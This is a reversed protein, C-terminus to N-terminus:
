YYYLHPVFDILQHIYFVISDQAFLNNPLKRFFGLKFNYIHKLKDPPYDDVPLNTVLTEIFGEAITIRVIRFNLNYFVPKKQHKGNLRPLYDLNSNQPICRYHNKDKILEKVEKM